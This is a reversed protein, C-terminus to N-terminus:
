LKIGSPKEDWSIREIEFHTSHIGKNKHFRSTSNEANDWCCQKNGHRSCEINVKTKHVKEGGSMWQSHNIAGTLDTLIQAVQIGCGNNNQGSKKHGSQGLKQPLWYKYLKCTNLM